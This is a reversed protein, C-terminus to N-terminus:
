RRVTVEPLTHRVHCVWSRVLPAFNGNFVMLFVFGTRAHIESARSVLQEEPDKDLGEQINTCWQVCVQM